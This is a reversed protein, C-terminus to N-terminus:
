LPAVTDGVWWDACQRLKDALDKHAPHERFRQLADDDEFIAREVLQVGKRLDRNWDVKFFLIGAGAGGCDEALTQYRSFIEEQIERSVGEHFKILVVHHLKDKVERKEGASIFSWAFNIDRVDYPKQFVPGEVSM